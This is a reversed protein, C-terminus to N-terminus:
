CLSVHPHSSLFESRLRLAPNAKKQEKRAIEMNNWLSIAGMPNFGAESAILMGIYDAEKERNRSLAAVILGGVALMPIALIQCQWVGISAGAFVPFFPALICTKLIRASFSEIGHAAVVHSVEHGLGAALEDENTIANFFGTYVLVQGAPTVM